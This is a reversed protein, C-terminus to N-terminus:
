MMAATAGGGLLMAFVFKVVEWAIEVWHKSKEKM